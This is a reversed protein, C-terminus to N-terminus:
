SFSELATLDRSQEPYEYGHRYPRKEKKTVASLLIVREASKIETSLNDVLLNQLRTQITDIAM